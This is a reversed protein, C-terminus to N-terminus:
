QSVEPPGFQPRFEHPEEYLPDGERFDANRTSQCGSGLVLLLITLVIGAVSGIWVFLRYLIGIGEESHRLHKM